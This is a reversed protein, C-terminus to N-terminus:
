VELLLPCLSQCRFKTGFPNDAGPISVTYGSCPTLNANIPGITRENIKKVTLKRTVSFNKWSFSMTQTFHVPKGYKGAM